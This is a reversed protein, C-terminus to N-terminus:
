DARTSTCFSRAILAPFPRRSVADPLLGGWCLLAGAVEGM